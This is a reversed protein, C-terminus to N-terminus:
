AILSASTGGLEKLLSGFNQTVDHEVESKDKWGRRNKLWFIAATSDPPVHEVTETRVIQGQFQFVKESAFSYGVARHYLSREVREDPGDKAIKIADRFEPHASAWRYFTSRHCEFFDAMEQDTFGAAALKRAQDVYEPKFGSPHGVPRKPQQPADANAFASPLFVAPAPVAKGKAKKPKSSAKPKADAKAKKPSKPSAKPKAAANRKAATGVHGTVRPTSKPKRPM